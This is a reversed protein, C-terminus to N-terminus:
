FLVPRPIHYFLWFVFSSADEIYKRMNDQTKLQDKKGLGNDDVVIIEINEYDQNLASEIARSLNKSRSYTPIIISVLNSDEM